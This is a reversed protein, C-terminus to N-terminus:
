SQAPEAAARSADGEEYWPARLAVQGTEMLSKLSSLVFPWGQSIGEFVKSGPEFDDHIM